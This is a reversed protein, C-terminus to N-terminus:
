KFKIKYPLFSYVVMAFIFPLSGSLFHIPDFYMVRFGLDFALYVFIASSVPNVLRRGYNNIVRLVVGFSVGVLVIGVLSGNIISYSLIDPPITSDPRGVARSTNILSTSNLDIDILRPPILSFPSKFVDLFYNLDKWVFNLNNSASFFPFTFNSIFSFFAEKLETGRDAFSTMVHETYLFIRFLSRGYLVIFVGLILIFFSKKVVHKSSVYMGGVLFIAIFRFFTLRGSSRFVFMAALSLSFLFLPLLFKLQKNEYIPQENFRKQYLGWFLLASVQTLMFIKDVIWPETSLQEGDASDHFHMRPNSFFWEVFGTGSITYLLTVTSLALLALAFFYVKRYQVTRVFINEFFTFKISAKTLSYSLILVVYLVIALLGTAYFNISKFDYDGSTVYYLVNYYGHNEQMDLLMYHAAIPTIAFCIFYVINFVTMIDIVRTRRRFLEFPILIATLIYQFIFIM